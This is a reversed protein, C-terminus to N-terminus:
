GATLAERALMARKRAKGWRYGGIAGSSRLVRHCPILYAVPNRGVASAVARTARPAGLRRALAGYSVVSGEPIQLLAQWVQLQFNTGRLHLRLGQDDLQASSFIRDVAARAARRDETFTAGPWAQLLEESATEPAAKEPFWLNCIGRETMAVLCDGFPSDCVGHHIALGRGRSKHEGPTVAEAAVFLDHLRGPGSLGVAYSADLVSASGRLLQKAHGLTVFQLFRKPSVGVWRQFLRQFHHPSLGVHAAVEDLSPQDVARQELFQIAREIRPYDRSTM